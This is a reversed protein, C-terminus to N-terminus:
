WQPGGTQPPIKDATQEQNLVPFAAIEYEIVSVYNLRDLNVAPEIRIEGLETIESVQGVPLDPPFV